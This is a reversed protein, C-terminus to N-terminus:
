ESTVQLRGHGYRNEEHEDRDGRDHSIGASGPPAPGPAAALNAQRAPQHGDPEVWCGSAAECGGESMWQEMQGICPTDNM